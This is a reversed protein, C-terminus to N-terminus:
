REVTSEITTRLETDPYLAWLDSERALGCRECLRRAIEELLDYQDLREAISATLRAVDADRRRIAERLGEQERVAEAIGYGSEYRALRDQAAELAEEVEAKQGHLEELRGREDEMRGREEELQRTLESIRKREARVADAIQEERQEHLLRVDDGARALEANHGDLLAIAEDRQQTAAAVQARLTETAEELERVRTTDRLSAMEARVTALTREVDLTRDQAERVDQASRAAAETAQERLARIEALSPPATNGCHSALVAAPTRACSIM